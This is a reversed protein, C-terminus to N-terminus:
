GPPLRAILRSLESRLAWGREQGVGVRTQFEWEEVAEIAENVCGALLLLEERTLHLVVAASGDDQALEGRM